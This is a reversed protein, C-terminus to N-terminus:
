LFAVVTELVSVDILLVQEPPSEIVSSILYSISPSTRSVPSAANQAQGIAAYTRMFRKDRSLAVGAVTACPSTFSFSLCRLSIPVSWRSRCAAIAKGCHAISRLINDTRFGTAERPKRM